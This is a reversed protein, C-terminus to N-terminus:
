CFQKKKQKTLQVMLTMQWTKEMQDLEWLKKKEAMTARQREVGQDDLHWSPM